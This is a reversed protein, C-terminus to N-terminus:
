CAAESLLEVEDLTFELTIDGLDQRVFDAIGDARFLIDV